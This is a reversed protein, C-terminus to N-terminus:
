LMTFIALSLDCVAHEYLETFGTQAEHDAEYGSFHPWLACTSYPWQSLQTASHIPTVRTYNKGAQCLSRGIVPMEKYLLLLFLFDLLKSLTRYYVASIYIFPLLCIGTCTKTKHPFLGGM